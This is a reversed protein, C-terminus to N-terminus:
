QKSEEEKAKMKKAHEWLTAALTMADNVCLYHSHSGLASSTVLCVSTDTNNVSIGLSSLQESITRRRVRKRAPLDPVPLKAPRHILEAADDDPSSDDVWKDRGLIKETCWVCAAIGRPLAHQHCSRCPHLDAATLAM